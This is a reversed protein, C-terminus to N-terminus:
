IKRTRGYQSALKFWLETPSNIEPENSRGSAPLEPEDFSNDYFSWKDCLNIFRNFFNELGHNYR